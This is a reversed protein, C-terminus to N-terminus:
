SNKWALSKKKHELQSLWSLLFTIGFSLQFDLFFIYFPNTILFAFACLTISHLTNVQKKLLVGARFLLLLVFSRLFSVSNWSLLLYIFSLILIIWQKLLFPLPVYGLLIEWAAVIIVLHLGSRALYHSIGWQKCMQKLHSLTDKFISKNGLFILSFLAFTNKTCKSKIAEFIKKRLNFLFRFFSTRPIALRTIDPNQSLLIGGINEKACYRSIAESPTKLTAGKLLITDAIDGQIPRGSYIVIKKDYPRILQKEIAVSVITGAYLYKLFPHERKEINTINLVINVPKNTVLKFWATHINIQKQYTAAGLLFSIALVAITTTEPKNLRAAVSLAVIALGFPIFFSFETSQYIIGLIFCITFPLLIHLKFTYFNDNIM